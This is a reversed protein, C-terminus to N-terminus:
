IKRVQLTIGDVAIVEVVDNVTLNNGQIRWTTDGFHGRGIGDVNIEEVRGKVGLMAHDRQNLSTQSQDQVDKRHQYKWWLVSFILALIAYAISLATLSLSPILAMVTAIVLAALGWWLFFVGPVIIELILLVFGLVVWHWSTWTLLWDM